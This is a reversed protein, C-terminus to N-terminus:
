NPMTHENYIIEAFIVLGGTCLWVDALNICGGVCIWDIVYGYLLRNALNGIAGAWLFIVGYLKRAPANKVCLFGLIGIGLIAAALSAHPFNKMLTFSIGKNHYLSLFPAVTGGVAESLNSEAWLKTATDMALLIIFVVWRVKM